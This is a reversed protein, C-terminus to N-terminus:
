GFPKMGENNLCGAIPFFKGTSYISRGDLLAM